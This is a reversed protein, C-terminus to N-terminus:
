DRIAFSYPRLSAVREGRSLLARSTTRRSRVRTREAPRLCSAPTSPRMRDPVSRAERAFGRFPLTQFHWCKGSCSHWRWWVRGCRGKSRHPRSPTRAAPSRRGAQRVVLSAPVAVAFRWRHSPGHRVRTEGSAVSGCGTRKKWRSSTTASADQGVRRSGNEAFLRLGVAGRMAESSIGIVGALRSRRLLASQAGRDCCARARPPKPQPFTGAVGKKLSASSRSQVGDDTRATAPRTLRATM